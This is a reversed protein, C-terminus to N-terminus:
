QCSSFPVVTVTAAMCGELQWRRSQRSWCQYWQRAVEPQGNLTQIGRATVTAFCLLTHAVTVSMLSLFPLVFHVCVPRDRLSERTCTSSGTCVAPQGCGAEVLPSTCPFYPTALMAGQVAIGTVFVPASGTNGWLGGAM